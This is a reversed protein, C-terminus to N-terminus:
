WPSAKAGELLEDLTPPAPPLTEKEMGEPTFDTTAEYVAKFREKLKNGAEPNLQAFWGIKGAVKAAFEGPTIGSKAAEHKIGNQECNHVIAKLAYRDKKLLNVKQNVVTGCVWQRQYTHMVKTKERNIRMGFQSVSNTIFDIIERNVRKSDDGEFDTDRSITIDDAYISLTYGKSDCYEKIIPGFTLSTFLNSLKPSTLAGQPVFAKYTCLESLTRAAGEGFGLHQYIQLLHTQKISKFFDKLDLSVVVKKGVHMAAMDPINKGKEFAHVYDPIPMKELIQTLIKYQVVRM